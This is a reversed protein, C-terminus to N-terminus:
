GKEDGSEDNIGDAENGSEKALVNRPEANTENHTHPGTPDANVHTRSEREAFQQDLRALRADLDTEPLVRHLSNCLQSLAGAMRPSIKNSRLDSIAQVLISSLDAASLSGATLPEPLRSRNKRGGIQGLTQAKDPNAHFFCMGQSGAPARCPAGAKTEGSCRQM